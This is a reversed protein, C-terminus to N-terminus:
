RRPPGAADARTTAEGDREVVLEPKTVKRLTMVLPEPVDLEKVSSM